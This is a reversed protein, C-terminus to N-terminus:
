VVQRQLRRLAPLRAGHLSRRLRPLGADPGHTILQAHPCTAMLRDYTPTQALVPANAFPDERLGWGDLICLVVPKTM